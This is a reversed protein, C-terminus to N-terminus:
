NHSQSELVSPGKVGQTDDTVSPLLLRDWPRVLLIKQWIPRERSYPDLKDKTTILLDHLGDAKVEYTFKFCEGQDQPRSRVETVLFAICPMHLRVGLFRPPNLHELTTYLALALEVTGGDRLSSVSGQM